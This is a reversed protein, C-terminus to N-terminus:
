NEKKSPSAPAVTTAPVVTTTETPALLEERQTKYKQYESELNSLQEERESGSLTQNERVQEQKELLAYLILDTDDLRKAIDIAGDGHGRGIEIWYDLYLEESKLTLNNFIVDEQEKSFEQSLSRAYSYALEYKQTYPLDDLEVKELKRIVDAYDVKIFAADADLMKEKFPYQVFVLYVLPILLLLTTAGFWITGLKFWKLQAKSVTTQRLREEERKERYANRVLEELDALTETQRVEALFSPLKIVELSGNYLSMYDEDVFLSIILSKVQLFFDEETMELPMMMGPVGRYAIQICGDKTVFLNEPHLLFTLPMKLAESLSLANLALRLKEAESWSRVEAMSFSDADVQYTFVITDEDADMTQALFLPHKLELVKLQLMDQTAIDSRKLRLQWIKENKEFTFTQGGWEFTSSTM